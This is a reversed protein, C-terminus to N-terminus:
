SQKERDEFGHLVRAPPLGEEVAEGTDQVRILARELDPCVGVLVIRDGAIRSRGLFIAALKELTPDCLVRPHGPRRTIDRLAHKAPAVLDRGVLDELLGLHIPLVQLRAAPV